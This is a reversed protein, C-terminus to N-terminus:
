HRYWPGSIPKCLGWKADVTVKGDSRVAINTGDYYVYGFDHNMGWSTVFFVDLSGDLNTSAWIQGRVTKPFHPLDNVNINYVSNLKFKNKRIDEVCKSYQQIGKNVFWVDRRELTLKGLGISSAVTLVLLAGVTLFYKKKKYFLSSSLFIFHFLLYPIVFVAIVAAAIPYYNDSGAWALDLFQVCLCLADLCVATIAFMLVKKQM